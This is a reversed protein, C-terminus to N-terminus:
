EFVEGALRRTVYEEVTKTPARKALKKDIWEKRFKKEESSMQPLGSKEIEALNRNVFDDMSEKIVGREKAENFSIGLKTAEAAVVDAYAGRLQTILIQKDNDTFQPKGVLENLAQAVQTDNADLHEGTKSADHIAKIKQTALASTTPPADCFEREAEIFLHSCRQCRYQIDVMRLEGNLHTHYRNLRAYVRTSGCAPCHRISMRRGCQCEDGKVGLHEKFTM